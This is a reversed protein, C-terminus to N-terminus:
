FYIVTVLQLFKLTKLILKVKNKLSIKNYNCLFLHTCKFLKEERLLTIILCFQKCKIWKDIVEYCLKFDLLFNM